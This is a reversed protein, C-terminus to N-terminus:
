DYGSNSLYLLYNLSIKKIPLSIYSEVISNIFLRESKDLNIKNVRKKRSICCDLFCDGKKKEKEEKLIIYKDKLRNLTNYFDVSIYGNKDRVFFISNDFFSRSAFKYSENELLYLLKFLESKSLNNKAREKLRSLLYLITSKLKTM